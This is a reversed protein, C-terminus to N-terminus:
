HLTQMAEAIHHQALVEGAYEEAEALTEFRSVEFVYIRDKKTDEIVGVTGEGPGIDLTDLLDRGM